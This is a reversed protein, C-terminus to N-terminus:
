INAHLHRLARGARSHRPTGYSMSCTYPCSPNCVREHAGSASWSAQAQCPTDMEICLWPCQRLWCVWIMKLWPACGCSFNTTGSPTHVALSSSAHHASWSCCSVCPSFAGGPWPCPVSLFQTFAPPHGWSDFSFWGSGFLVLCFWVSGDLVM